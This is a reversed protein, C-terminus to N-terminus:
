ACVFTTYNSPLVTIFHSCSQQRVAAVQMCWHLNKGLLVVANASEVPVMVHDVRPINSAHSSSDAIKSWTLSGLDLCFAEATLQSRTWQSRINIMGGHMILQEGLVAVACGTRAVPAASTHLLKWCPTRRSRVSRTNLTSAANQTKRPLPSTPNSARHLYQGLDM